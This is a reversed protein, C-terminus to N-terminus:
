LKQSARERCDNKEMGVRSRHWDSFGSLISLEKCLNVIDLIMQICSVSIDRFDCALMLSKLTTSASPLTSIVREDRVVSFHNLITVIVFFSIGRRVEGGCLNGMSVSGSGGLHVGRM